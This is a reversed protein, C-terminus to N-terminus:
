GPLVNSKVTLSYIEAIYVLDNKDIAIVGMDKHKQCFYNAEETSKAVHQVRFIKGMSKCYLKVGNSLIM